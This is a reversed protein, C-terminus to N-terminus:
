SGAFCKSSSNNLSRCCMYIISSSSSVVSTHGQFANLGFIFGFWMTCWCGAATEELWEERQPTREGWPSLETLIFTLSVSNLMTLLVVFNLPSDVVPKILCAHMWRWPWASSQCEVPVVSLPLLLGFSLGFCRWFISRCHLQFQFVIACYWFASTYIELCANKPYM